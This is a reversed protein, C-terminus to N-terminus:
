SDRPLQHLPITVRFTAGGGPTASYRVTGQHASVIASVISLGLGVGVGGNLSDGDPRAPSRRRAPDARYFREFV